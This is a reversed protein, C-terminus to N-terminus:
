GYINNLALEVGLQIDTLRVMSRWMIMNGPPPDSKRDLYGGLEALIILYDTLKKSKRASSYKSKDLYDLIKIEDDTFVLNPSANPCVRNVM